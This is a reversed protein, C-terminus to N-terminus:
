PYTKKWFIRSTNFANKGTFFFCLQRQIGKLTMTNSQEQIGKLFFCSQELNKNEVVIKM